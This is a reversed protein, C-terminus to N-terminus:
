KTWNKWWFEGQFTHHRIPNAYDLLIMSSRRLVWQNQRELRLGLLSKVVRVECEVYNKHDYVYGGHISITNDSGKHVLIM